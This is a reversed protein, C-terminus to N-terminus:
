VNLAGAFNRMVDELKQTIARADQEILVPARDDTFSKYFIIGVFNGLTYVVTNPFRPALIERVGIM